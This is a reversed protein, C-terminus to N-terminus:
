HLYGKSHLKEVAEIMQFLIQSFSLKKDMMKQLYDEIPWEIYDTIIYPDNLFYGEDL